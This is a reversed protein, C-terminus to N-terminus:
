IAKIEKITKPFDLLSCVHVVVTSPIPKHNTSTLVNQHRVAVGYEIEIFFIINTSSGRPTTTPPYLLIYLLLYKGIFDDNKCSDKTSYRSFIFYQM